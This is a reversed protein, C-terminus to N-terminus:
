SLTCKGIRISHLLVDKREILKAIVFQSRIGHAYLGVGIFQM